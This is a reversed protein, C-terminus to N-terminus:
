RVSAWVSAGVSEWVSAGVSEGFGNMLKNDLIIARTIGQSLPSGCWVIKAPPKKGASEYMMRIAREAEPRNAPDTCLGINTWRNVFEPFRAIQEPSLNEIRPMKVSGRATANRPPNM